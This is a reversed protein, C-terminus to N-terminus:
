KLSTMPMGFRYNVPRRTRGSRTIVATQLANLLREKRERQKLEREKKQERFM